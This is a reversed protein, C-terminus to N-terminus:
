DPGRSEEPDLTLNGNREVEADIDIVEKEKKGPNNAPAASPCENLHGVRRVEDDLNMQQPV